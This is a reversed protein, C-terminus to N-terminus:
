VGRKRQIFEPSRVWAVVWELLSDRRGEPLADVVEGFWREAPRSRRGTLYRLTQSAFCSRAESTAGLQTVLEASDRFRYTRGALAFEGSTTAPQGHERTRHRGAADFGEFSFGLPDISDHCSRCAASSTHAGFRARTTSLEDRPPMTIDIGLEGPRPLDVCLLRRLVFDGRKVPSTVDEYAHAALFSAQELLGVRGQRVLSVRPGEFGPIGYYRAMEADLSTFGAGLLSALTAGGYVMVEDVFARTEALMHSKVADYDDVLNAAKATRELQDVELWELVFQRFHHRTESLSLLRRAQAERAAPDLLGGPGAAAALLEEDPPGGTVAYSLSSAIEYPTLTTVSLTVDDTRGLESLYIMSPSALLTSLVLTLGRAHAAVQVRGAPVPESVASQFLAQIASREPTTPPRRFIRRELTELARVVCGSGPADTAPCPLLRELRREVALRALRESVRGLEGAYYSPVAQRENITYGDQREDPPLVDRISEDLGLVANASREYEVNSLRRLRVSLLADKPAVPVPPVACGALLWAIGLAFHQLGLRVGGKTM